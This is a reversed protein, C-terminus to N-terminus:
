PRRSRRRLWAQPRVVFRRGDTCRLVAPQRQGKLWRYVLSMRGPAVIVTLWAKRAALRNRHLHGPSSARGRVRRGPKLVRQLRVFPM